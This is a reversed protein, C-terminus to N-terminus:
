AQAPNEEKLADAISTAWGSIADWDRFDGSPAGVNKIMFKQLVNLNDEDLAGHFLAIDRAGIQDAVPQLGEPFRWGDTLAVPDGEGTPGSSFLWVPQKALAEAHNKLFRAAPKQWRGIYVASGVVVADYAAPDGAEEAPVVETRLGAERLVEGIREAIEATADYKSGYTVLVRKNM